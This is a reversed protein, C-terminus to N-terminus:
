KIEEADISNYYQRAMDQMLKGQIFNKCSNQKIDEKISQTLDKKAKTNVGMALTLSSFLGVNALHPHNNAIKNVNKDLFKAVKTDNITNALNQADKQVFNKVSEFTKTNSLMKLGAGTAVAAGLMTCAAKINAKESEDKKSFKNRLIDFGECLALFGLGKAVKSSTKGPQAIMIGTTLIGTTILPIAKLLRAKTSKEVSEHAKIISKACLVDDNPEDYRKYRVKGEFSGKENALFMVRPKPRCNNIRSIQM